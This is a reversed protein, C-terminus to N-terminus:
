REKKFLQITGTATSWMPGREWLWFSKQNKSPTWPTGRKSSTWSSTKFTPQISNLKPDPCTANELNSISTKLKKRVSSIAIFCKLERPSTYRKPWPPSNEWVTFWSSESARPSTKRQLFNSTSCLTLRSQMMTWPQKYFMGIFYYHLCTTDNILLTFNITYRDTIPFKVSPVPVREEPAVNFLRILRSRREALPGDQYQRM